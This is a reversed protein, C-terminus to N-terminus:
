TKVVQYSAAEEHLIQRVREKSIHEVIGKHIAADRLRELSWTQIPMGHDRPSSLALDVLGQRREQTFTAPAGPAKKPYLADRGMRNFDKIIRRVWDESWWVMRVIKPPSFGQYSHLVVMARKMVTVDKTTRVLRSLAQGESIGLERVRLMLADRPPM